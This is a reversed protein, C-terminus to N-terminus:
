PVIKKFNSKSTCGESRDNSVRFVDPHPSRPHKYFTSEPEGFWRSIEVHRDGGVVGQDQLSFGVNEILREFSQSQGTMHSNEFIKFKKLECSVAMM